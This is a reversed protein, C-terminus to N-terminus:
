AKEQPASEELPQWWAKVWVGMMGLIVGLVAALAVNMKTRPSVPEEPPVAQASLLAVQNESSALAQTQSRLATLSRYTEWATDRQQAAERVRAQEEELTKKLNVTEAELSKQQETLGQEREEIATQLEKILGKAEGVTLSSLADAPWQVQVNITSSACVQLAWVQQQLMVLTLADSPSFAATTELGNLYKEFSAVSARLRELSRSLSLVCDLTSKVNELQVSLATAKSGDLVQLYNDQTKQYNEWASRIQPALQADLAEWGYRANIDDAVLKAWHNAVLAARAPDTDKFLLQLGDKGQEKVEASGALRQWTLSKEEQAWAAQVAPDESLRQFLKPAQAMVTVTKVDPVIIHLSLGESVQNELEPQTLVLDAEAQYQEPLALSVVLAAVAAALTVAVIIWKGRWLTLVLERLDIEDECLDVVQNEMGNDEVGPCRGAQQQKM